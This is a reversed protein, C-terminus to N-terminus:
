QNFKHLAHITRNLPVPSYFQIYTGTQRARGTTGSGIGTAIFVTGVTNASAGIATFDTDGAFTIIFEIGSTFSGTLTESGTGTSSPNTVLDFNVTGLQVITETIVLLNVAMQDLNWNPIDSQRTISDMPDPNLPGFITSVDDGVSLNQLVVGNPEKFRIPRWQSAQYAELEGGTIGSTNYRIMGNVPSVPQQATTGKPLLLNNPTNMVVGSATDIALRDDYIARRNLTLTKLFRM